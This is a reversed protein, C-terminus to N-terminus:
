CFHPISIWFQFADGSLKLGLYVKLSEWKIIKSISETMKIFEIVDSKGDYVAPSLVLKLIIQAEM